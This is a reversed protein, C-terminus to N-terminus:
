YEAPVFTFEFEKWAEYKEAPLNYIRKCNLFTEIASDVVQRYLVNDLDLYADYDELHRVDKVFGREDLTVYIKVQIGQLDEQAFLKGTSYNWCTKVQSRVTGREEANLSNGFSEPEDSKNLDAAQLKKLEGLLDDIKGQDIQNEREEIHKEDRVGEKAVPIFKSPEIEEIEPEPEPEPEAKPPEILEVEERIKNDEPKEEEKPKPIIKSEPLPAIDPLVEELAIIDVSVEILREDSIIEPLRFILAYIVMLHFFLSFLYGLAM